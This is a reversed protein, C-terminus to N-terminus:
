REHPRRRSATAYLLHSSIIANRHVLASLSPQYVDVAPDAVAKNVNGGNGNPIVTRGYSCGVNCQAWEILQNLTRNQRLSSTYANKLPMKPCSPLVLDNIRCCCTLERKGTYDLLFRTQSLVLM